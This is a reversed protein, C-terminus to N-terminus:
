GVGGPQGYGHGVRSGGCDVTGTYRSDTHGSHRHRNCYVHRGGSFPRCQFDSASLEGRCGWILVECGRTLRFRRSRHQRFIWQNARGLTFHARQGRQARYARRRFQNGQFRPGIVVLSICGYKEASRLNGDSCRRSFRSQRSFDGFSISTGTSSSPPSFIATVGPPLGAASFNVNGTFGNQPIVTIAQSVDGGAKLILSSAAATLSFSPSQVTLLLAITSRLSGSSGTITVTFEGAPAMADAAFTITSKGAAFPTFSASIGPPMGSAALTVTGTFGTQPIVTISATASRGANVSVASPSVALSFPVAPAMGVLDDILHQGAPTGWGTALDYGAIAAFGSNNGLAIDHFDTLYGPSQGIAYIAPNIFGIRSKASTAAKQNALATFGAWLPAAASTGGVSMKQGNNCILFIQLDATLAVDPINRM